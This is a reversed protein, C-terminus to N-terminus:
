PAPGLRVCAGTLARDTWGDMDHEPVPMTVRRLLGPPLQAVAPLGGRLFEVLEGAQGVVARTVLHQEVAAARLAVLEPAEVQFGLLSQVQLGLDGSGGASRGGTQLRSDTYMGPWSTM